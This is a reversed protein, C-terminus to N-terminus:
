QGHYDIACPIKTTCPGRIEYWMCWPKTVKLPAESILPTGGGSEGQGPSGRDRLPPGALRITDLAKLYSLGASDSGLRMPGDVVDDVGLVNV